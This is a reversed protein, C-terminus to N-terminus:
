RLRDYSKILKEDANIGRLALIWLVPTAFLFISWLSYTGATYSDNLCKIIYVINLITVLLGAIGIRLQLKRNKYLFIAVLSTAVILIQLVIAIFMKDTMKFFPILENTKGDALVGTYLPKMLCVSGIFAIVLLWVSQIRQIM